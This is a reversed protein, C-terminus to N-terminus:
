VSSSTGRPQLRKGRWIINCAYRIGEGHTERLPRPRRDVLPHDAGTLGKVRLMEHVQGIADRQRSAGAPWPPEVM